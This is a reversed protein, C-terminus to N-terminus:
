SSFLRDIGSAWAKELERVRDQRIGYTAVWFWLDGPGHSEIEIRFIADNLEQITGVLQTPPTHNHIIGTYHTGGVTAAYPGARLESGGQPSFFGDVSVVRGWLDAKGTELKRQVRAVIRDKGHHRELYHRLGQLEFAWGFRVGDYEGDWAEGTGFGSTVVRLVTRGGRGKLYYDTALARSGVAPFRARLHKGPKWVEIAAEGEYMEGWSMWISGGAGPTVTADLPFWRTLEDADTLAAWVAEVPAEIQITQDVVRARTEPADHRHSM